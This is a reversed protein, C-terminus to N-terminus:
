GMVECLHRGIAAFCSGGGMREGAVPVVSTCVLACARAWRNYQPGSVFHRFLGAMKTVQEEWTEELFKSCVCVGM